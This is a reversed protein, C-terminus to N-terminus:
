SDTGAKMVSVDGKIESLTAVTSTTPSGDGCGVVTSAVLIILALVSLLRKRM